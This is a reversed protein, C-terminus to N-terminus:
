GCGFIIQLHFHEPDYELGSFLWYHNTLSNLFYPVAACFMARGLHFNSGKLVMNRTGSLKSMSTCEMWWM